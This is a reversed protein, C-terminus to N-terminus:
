RLASDSGPGELADVVRDVSRGDLPGLYTAAWDALADGDPVGQQLRRLLEGLEAPTRATWEELFPDGAFPPQLRQQNVAYFVIPLGSAAAELLSTSYTSVYVDAEGFLDIVDGSAVVRLTPLPPRSLLTGYHAPGDAPHLKLTVQADGAGAAIGELVEELYREADSRRCNLDIPSFTFSGVLVRRLQVGPRRGLRRRPSDARPNGTVVTAGHARRSFYVRALAESWALGVDATMCEPQFDDAFIGNNLVFTPIEAEQALRVLLRADPPTDFPVLVLEVRERRLLERLRPATAEAYACYREVVDVLHPRVADWLSIGGVTFRSRLEEERAQAYAELRSRAASDRLVRPLAPLAALVDGAAVAARAVDRGAGVRVLRRRAPRRAYRAAFARTPNYEYVLLTGPDHRRSRMRASARSVHEGVALRVARWADRRPLWPDRVYAYKAVLLDSRADRSILRRLIATEGLRARAATEAGDCQAAETRRYVAGGVAPAATRFAHPAADQLLAELALAGRAAPVLISAGVEAGALDAASVGATVSPDNGGPDFWEFALRWLTVNAEHAQESDILEDATLVPVGAPAAEAVLREDTALVDADPDHAFCNTYILQVV